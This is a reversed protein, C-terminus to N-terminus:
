QKAKQKQEQVIGKISFTYSYFGSKLSLTEIFPGLRDATALIVKIGGDTLGEVAVIRSDDTRTFPLSKGGDRQQNILPSMNRGYFRIQIIWGPDLSHVDYFTEGISVYDRNVLAGWNITSMTGDKITDIKLQEMPKTRQDLSVGPQAQALLPSSIIAIIYLLKKM